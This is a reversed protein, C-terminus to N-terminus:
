VQIERMWGHKDTEEGFQIQILRERLRMVSEKVFDIQRRETKMGIDQAVQFLSLNTISPLITSSDPTIYTNNKIAVFNSTNFEEIFKREVPDLYLGIPYGRDKYTKQVILDAAYNGAAKVHGTGRPAARDYEEVVKGDVGQVGGSYYSAVPTVVVMFKATTAPALGIQASSGFIFPRVYLSAGSSGYPPIFDKNKRCAIDIAEHFIDAPVEPLMLRRCGSNMRKNNEDDRFIRFKGDACHYGKVGEFLAQGYHLVNACAHMNLIPNPEFRGKDWGSGQTWTYEVHGTVEQVAFGLNPWDLKAAGVSFRRVARSMSNM